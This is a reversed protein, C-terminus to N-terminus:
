IPHLSFVELLALSELYKFLYINLQLFNWKASSSTFFLCLGACFYKKIPSLTSFLSLGAIKTCLLANSMFICQRFKHHTHRWVGKKRNHVVKKREENIINMSHDFKILLITTKKNSKNIKIKLNLFKNWSRKGLFLYM